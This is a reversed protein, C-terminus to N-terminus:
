AVRRFDVRLVNGEAQIFSPLKTLRDGAAEARALVTDVWDRGGYVDYADYISHDEREFWAAFHRPHMTVKRKMVEDETADALVAAAGGRWPRYHRWWDKGADPVLDIDPTSLWFLNWVAESLPGLRSILEAESDSLGVLFYDEIPRPSYVFKKM